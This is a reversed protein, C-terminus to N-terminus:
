DSMSVSKAEPLPVATPANWHIHFRLEGQDGSRPEVLLYGTNRHGDWCFVYHSSPLRSQLRPTKGALANPLPVEAFVFPVLPQGDEYEDRHMLGALRGNPPMQVQYKKDV